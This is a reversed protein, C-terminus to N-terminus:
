GLPAVLFGEALRGDPFGVHAGIMTGWERLRGELDPMHSTQSAHERLAAAKRPLV